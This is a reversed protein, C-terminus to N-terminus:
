DPPKGTLLDCVVLRDECKDKCEMYCLAILDNNILDVRRAKGLSESGIRQTEEMTARDLSVLDGSDAQYLIRSENVLLVKYGDIISKKSLINGKEYRRM